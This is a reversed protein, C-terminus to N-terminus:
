HIEQGGLFLTLFATRNKLAGFLSLWRVVDTVCGVVFAGRNVVEFCLFFLFGWCFCSEVVFCKEAVL